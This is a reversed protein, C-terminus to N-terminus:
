VIRKLTNEKTFIYHKLVGLVHLVLLIMMILSTIGHVKMPAIESRNKILEPANSQLAETYGGLLMVAIGSISLVFLIIYFVNHIWVTLKNNFKSGTELDSPREHKFFSRTRVITLVFVIIGLVAHITILGMKESPEISGMYRGLPYLILILLATLWHTAITAKSYKQTLDNQITKKM